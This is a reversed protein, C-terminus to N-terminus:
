PYVLNFHRDTLSTIQLRKRNSLVDPDHQYLSIFCGYWGLFKTENLVFLIIIELLIGCTRVSAIDSIVLLFM